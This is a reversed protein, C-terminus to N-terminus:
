LSKYQALPASIEFITAEATSSASISGGHAEIISKVIALGLGAGEGSRRRSADPRYFRDFIYPIHEAPIIPGPNQIRVCANRAIASLSVTVSRKAPTYRIANSLLNSLARRVMLRDGLICVPEGIAELGVEREEAWASFYDFLIRIEAGLDITVQEPKLLNNDAQALFLMDGVMKAMREYEELNSYLIERYQEVSRSQSLVVETQTKLNTIPTRLEHAIDGSFDSLRRFVDELREIMGNFSAALEMLEAPVAHPELRIHLQDSRIRRIERSIRRIPAHGQYVALWTALIAILCATATVIQLYTRFSELYHLHFNIGTAVAITLPESGPTMDSATRVVAGRLTEGDAQWIGVNDVTINKVPQALRSFRGLNSGPSAYILSGTSSIIQFQANHHGSVAHAFRQRLETPATEPPLTALTQELAQVVANLEDVDQQVFHNNISREVIWGFTLLVIVIAAGISVTLRIALSAPRRRM